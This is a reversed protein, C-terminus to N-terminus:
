NEYLKEGPKTGIIEIHEMAKGAEIGRFYELMALALNLIKIVPMKTIFIEGGRMIGGSNVVLLAAEELSMVFRTMETSTLTVKKSELIQRKFIPLVSGTSGLVNGFRTSCFITNFSNDNSATILREGMLKSTGMVNTPNVAKDSSTFICRKVGERQASRIVNQVGLINSAVAQEPSRECMAVHKLAACHFIIDVGRCYYELDIASRIDAVVVTLKSKGRYKQELEFQGSM